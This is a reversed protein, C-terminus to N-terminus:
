ERQLLTVLEVVPRPHLYHREFSMKSMQAELSKSYVLTIIFLWVSIINKMIM